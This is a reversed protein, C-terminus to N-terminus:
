PPTGLFASIIAALSDPAAIGISMHTRNALERVTVNRLEKQIREISERRFPVMTNQEFERLQQSLAPNKRETPYYTSAYLALTPAQVKKYDRRWGGMTTFLASFVMPNPVPQPHGEEDLHAVDRLYAELGNTWPVSGLWAEQYWARLSDLSKVTTASPTNVSLVKQFPKYFSTTSWDYGADLYILKDVHDPYKVAFATIEDGGMGWGLLSTHKLRLDELVGRLDDLLTLDDYPAIPSSSRGHGRRAYAYLHYTGRLQNALDDFIHPSDGLDHVMVLPPGDGGWDLCELRAHGEIYYSRHPSSDVFAPAAPANGKAQAAAGAGALVIAATLVSLRTM